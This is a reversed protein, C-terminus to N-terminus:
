GEGADLAALVGWCGGLVVAFAVTLLLATM